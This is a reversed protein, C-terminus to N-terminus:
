SHLIPVQSELTDLLQLKETEFGVSSRDVDMWPNIEVSSEYKEALMRGVAFKYEPSNALRTCSRRLSHLISRQLDAIDPPPPLQIDMAVLRLHKELHDGLWETQWGNWSRRIRDEIGEVPETQWYHLSQTDIDIHLGCRPMDEIWFVSPVLAVDRLMTLQSPGLQLAEVDGYIRAALCRGRQRVTLLTENDEPYETLVTFGEETKKDVLFRDAPLGVYAGIEVIGGTAWRIDWDQWQCKMLDLFARRHPIDYLIDEGGYWVLVKRDEDLVVAGECWVEDLWDNRDSLPEIQEIFDAALRPGWFLEIDLRNACWHDYYLNWNKQRVIVLNARQGMNSESQKIQREIESWNRNRRGL